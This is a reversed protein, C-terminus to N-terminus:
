ESRLTEAPNAIAAKLSQYITTAAATLLIIAAAIVFLGPTITTRYAFNQLWANMALWAAPVAIALAIVILRAFNKSLLAVITGTSAGLIKRIGIEKSRQEAAYAALGLLGLCAIAIALATLVVVIDGMRQEAHYVADFDQDMFSYNFPKHPAAAAWLPKVKALVDTLDGPAVRINLGAQNDRPRDVMVLPTVSNRISTFNFDKVIGIVTFDVPKGLYSHYAITKGLPDAAIGYAKAASENLIIANSDTPHDHAFNRGQAIHMGMTPVYDEDVIWLQTEVVTTGEPSPASAPPQRVSGWNHWRQEGTPLFNTLTASVVGPVQTAQMKLTQPNTIGDLDKVVLVQNRDYGPDRHQIFYLQRYVVLAGVILFISISFQLVVLINRFSGASRVSGTKGIGAAIQGKLVQVPRFASLFFAPWAGSFLGVVAIIAILAPLLWRLTNEDLALEKGTLRNFAPLLLWTALFAIIAALTTVMVSEGLFQRILQARASGLVKRVGVERARTTSRATSLNMFNIGAILLVFVAIAGFIYVYQIDSNGALEDTRHSHLHIDTLPTSNLRFATKGGSAQEYASYGKVFRGMFGALIKGFPAKDKADKLLVFTSMPFLAYFNHNKELLSQGHITLFIDANFCSQKPVDKIVAVVTWLRNRDDSRQLTKGVADITHFYKRAATETFVMTYPQLLGRIADGELTQLTFVQFFSPDVTAVYQETLDDNGRLFRVGHEPCLRATSEVQAYNTKLTSAVVPAADAFSTLIGDDVLDSNIRVIRDAKTNYRDFRLEDNIYLIILLFTTLGLTLGLINLLTFTKNKRLQRLALKTTIGPM